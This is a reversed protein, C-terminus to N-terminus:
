PDIQDQKIETATGEIAVGMRELRTLLEDTNRHETIQTPRGTLQLLKDSNIGKVTAMNRASSASDKIDGAEIRQLELALAAKEVQDALSISERLSRVIEQELQPALKDHIEQYRPQRRWYSLTAKPIGTQESVANLNGTIAVLALAKDKEQATYRTQLNHPRAM